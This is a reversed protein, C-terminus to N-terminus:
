LPFTRMNDHRLGASYASLVPLFATLKPPRAHDFDQFAHSVCYAMMMASTDAPICPGVALEEPRPLAIRFDRKAILLLVVANIQFHNESTIHTSALYILGAM